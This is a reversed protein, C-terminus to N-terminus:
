PWKACIKVMKINNCFFFFSLIQRWCSCNWIFIGSCQLASTAFKFFFFKEKTEIKRSANWFYCFTTTAIVVVVVVFLMLCSTLIFLICWLNINEIICKAHRQQWDHHIAKAPLRSIHFIKDKNVRFLLWFLLLLFLFINKENNINHM